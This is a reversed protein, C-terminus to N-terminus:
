SGILELNEHTLTFKIGTLALLPTKNNVAKSVKNLNNLLIQRNIKFKM